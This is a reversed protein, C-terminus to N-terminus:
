LPGGGWFGNEKSSGCGGTKVSKRAFDTCRTKSAQQVGARTLVQGSRRLPVRFVSIVFAPFPPGLCWFPWPFPHTKRPKKADLGTKIGRGPEPPGPCRGPGWFSGLRVLFPSLFLAQRLFFLSRSDRHRYQACRM